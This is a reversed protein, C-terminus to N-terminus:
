IEEKNIDSVKRVIGVMKDWRRKKEKLESMWREKSEHEWDDGSSKDLWDQVEVIEEMLDNAMFVVANHVMVSEEQDLGIFIKGGALSDTVQLQMSNMLNYIKTETEECKGKDILGSTRLSEVIVQIYIPIRM